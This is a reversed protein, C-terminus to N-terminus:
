RFGGALTVGTRNLTKFGAMEVTIQYEGAILLPAEFYGSTNTVLPQVVSTAM